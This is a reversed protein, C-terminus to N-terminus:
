SEADWRAGTSLISGKIRLTGKLAGILAASDTTVPVLKAVPRGHKTIVVGEPDVSDLIALCQAKFQAAGMTKM